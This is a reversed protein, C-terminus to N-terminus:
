CVYNLLPELLKAFPVLAKFILLLTAPCWFNVIVLQSCDDLSIRERYSFNSFFEIDVMRHNNPMQLLNSLHFAQLIGPVPSGPPSGDIPDCLTPCSQLSKATAAASLHFLETLPHKMLQSCDFLQKSNEDERLRCLLLSGNRSWITIHSSFHVEGLLQRHGAWHSSLSAGFCKGFGFKCWLFTM